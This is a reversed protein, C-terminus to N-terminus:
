KTRLGAVKVAGRHYGDPFLRELDELGIGNAECCEIVTPVGGNKEYSKRLYGVIKRHMPTLGGPIKMEAAKNAAYCTDWDSPDLLFGFADVRYVKEKLAAPTQVSEAPGLLERAAEGYYDINHDRYSLGALMCAGRMYGAPFLAKLDDMSLGNARCSAFVSPCQGTRAFQTRIYRIVQWHKDTLGGHIKASPARGEAYDEDWRSFDVLSGGEDVAYSKGKYCFTEM